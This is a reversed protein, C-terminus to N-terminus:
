GRDQKVYKEYDSPTNLSRLSSCDDLYFEYTKVRQFLSLLSREGSQLLDTMPTLCRRSYCAFLPELRGDPCRPVVVDFGSAFRTLQRMLEIKVDPMDCAVVANHETNSASLASRIGEMPGLGPEGDIVKRLPSRDFDGERGICLVVEQFFPGLRGTVREFMPMGEVPLRAKDRKMRRSQGGCLVFLTMPEGACTLKISM